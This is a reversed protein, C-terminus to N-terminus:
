RLVSNSKLDRIQSPQQADGLDGAVICDISDGFEEEIILRSRIEPQGARNASTSVIPKGFHDCLAAVGPHASVGYPSQTM